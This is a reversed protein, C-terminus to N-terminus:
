AAEVAQWLLSGEEYEVVARGSQKLERAGRVSARSLHKLTFFGKWSFSRGCYHPTDGEDHHDANSAFDAKTLHEVEHAIIRLGVVPIHKLYKRIYVQKGAAVAKGLWRHKPSSRNYSAWTDEKLSLSCHM